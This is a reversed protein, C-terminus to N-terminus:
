QVTHNEPPDAPTLSRYIQAIEEIARDAPLSNADCMLKITLVLTAAGEGPTECLFQLMNVFMQAHKLNVHGGNWGTM